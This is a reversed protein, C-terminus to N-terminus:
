NEWFQIPIKEFTDQRLNVLKNVDEEIEVDSILAETLMDPLVSVSLHKEDSKFVSSIHKCV